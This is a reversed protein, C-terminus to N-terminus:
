HLSLAKMPISSIPTEKCGVDIEDNDCKYTIVVGNDVNKESIKWIAKNRRRRQGRSLKKVEDLQVEPPTKIITMKNKSSVVNEESARRMAKNNRKRQGSSLKNVEEEELVPPLIIVIKNNIYTVNKDVARWRVKSGRKKQGESFVKVGGQQLQLPSTNKKLEPCKKLATAYSLVTKGNCNNGTSGIEIIKHIRPDIKVPPPKVSEYLADFEDKSADPESEEDSNSSYGHIKFL